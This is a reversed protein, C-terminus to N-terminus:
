PVFLSSLGLGLGAFAMGLFFPDPRLGARAAIFGTALATIAVAGYGAAENLGMALGRQKPGVLDIKMIVTTSWTLGQNIGLLVNAVIIWGWSPGFALLFPSCTGGDGARFFSPCGLLCALINGRLPHRAQLHGEIVEFAAEIPGVVVNVRRADEVGVPGPHGTTVPFQCPDHDSGHQCHHQCGGASWRRCGPDVLDAEPTPKAM